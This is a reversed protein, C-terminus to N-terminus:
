ALQRRKKVSLAGLFLFLAGGSYLGIALGYNWAGRDIRADSPNWRDYLVHVTDGRSYSPPSSSFSDVFTHALGEEDRFEVVASYTTGDSTPEKEDLRVVSGSAPDAKSMFTNTKVHTHYGLLLTVIGIVFLLPVAFRQSKRYNQLAIAVGPPDAWAIQDNSDETFVKPGFIQNKYERWEALSFSQKRWAGKIKIAVGASVFVAMAISYVSVHFTFRFVLISVFGMGALMGGIVFSLSSKFTASLPDTKKVLITVQDGVSHLPVSSGISGEIYYTRGDTGKYRAVSHFSPSAPKSRHSTSFGVVRGTMPETNRRANLESWVIACGISVLVLGALLFVVEM